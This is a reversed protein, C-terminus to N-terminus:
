EVLGIVGIKVGGREFTCFAQIGEPAKGTRSDVINSVIWPKFLNNLSVRHALPGAIKVSVFNCDGM